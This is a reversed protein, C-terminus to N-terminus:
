LREEFSRIVIQTLPQGKSDKELRRLGDKLEALGDFAGEEADERSTEAIKVLIDRFAVRRQNDSLSTYWALADKAMADSFLDIRCRRCRYFAREDRQSLANALRNRDQVLLYRREQFFSLIQEYIEQEAETFQDTVDEEPLNGPFAPAEEGECAARLSESLGASVANMDPVCPWAYGYARAAALNSLLNLYEEADLAGSYALQLYPEWGAAVMDDDMELFSLFRMMNEPRMKGALYDGTRALAQRIAPLDWAGSIAGDKLCDPMYRDWYHGPYNQQLRNLSYGTTRSRTIKGGKALITFLVFSSFFKRIAEPPLDAERCLGYIREFDQVGCRLSRINHLECVELVASLEGANERLFALYDERPSAYQAIVGAVVKSPDMTLRVTRVILKEKMESYLLYERSEGEARQQSLTELKEENAVVITKIHLNECYENICGLIEVQSLNTRELDDFALILRCGDEPRVSALPMNFSACAASAKRRVGDVSDEGFLSLRILVFADGLAERIEHELLYTKGTGWAGCLLLAGFTNEERCYRLIETVANKM